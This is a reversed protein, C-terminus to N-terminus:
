GCAGGLATAGLNRALTTEMAIDTRRDEDHMKFGHKPM